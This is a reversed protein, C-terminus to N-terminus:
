TILADFYITFPDFCSNEPFFILFNTPDNSWLHGWTPGDKPAHMENNMINIYEHMWECKIYILKKIRILFYLILILFFFFLIKSTM